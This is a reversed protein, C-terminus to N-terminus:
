SHSRARVVRLAGPSRLILAGVHGDVPGSSAIRERAVLKCVHSRTGVLYLLAWVARGEAVVAGKCLCTGLGLRESCSLRHALSDLVFSRDSGVELLAVFCAVFLRGWSRAAVNFVVVYTVKALLWEQM